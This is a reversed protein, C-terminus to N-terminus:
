LFSIDVAEEATSNLVFTSVTAVPVLVFGNSFTFGTDGNVGKVVKVNTSTMPPVVLAYAAGTPVNVTNNGSSLAVSVPVGGPAANNIIPSQPPTYTETKVGDGTVQVCLSLVSQKAM